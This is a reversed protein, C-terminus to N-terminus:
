FTLRGQQPTSASFSKPSSPRGYASFFMLVTKNLRIFEGRFGPLPAVNVLGSHEGMCARWLADKPYLLTGRKFPIQLGFSQPGAMLELVREEGLKKISWILFTGRAFGENLIKWGAAELSCGFLKAVELLTEVTIDTTLFKRLFKRPMLIESAIANCRDELYGDGCALGEMDKEKALLVHAIEHALTFRKRSSPANRSLIVEYEGRDLELLQGDLHTDQERVRCIGQRRAIRYLNVPPTRVECDELLREVRKVIAKEALNPAKSKM